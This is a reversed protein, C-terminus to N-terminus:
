MNTSTMNLKYLGHGHGHRIEMIQYQGSRGQWMVKEMTYYNQYSLDKHMVRSVNREKRMGIMGQTMTSGHFIMESASPAKLFSVYIKISIVLFIFRTYFHVHQPQEIFYM